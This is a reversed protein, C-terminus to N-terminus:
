AELVKQILSIISNVNLWSTAELLLVYNQSTTTTTVQHNNILYENFMTSLTNVDQYYAILM